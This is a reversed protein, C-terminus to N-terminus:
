FEKVMNNDKLFSVMMPHEMLKYKKEMDRNNTVLGNGMMSIALNILINEKERPNIKKGIDRIYIEMAIFWVDMGM